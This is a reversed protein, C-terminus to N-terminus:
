HIFSVREFAGRFCVISHHTAFRPKAGHQCHRILLLTSSATSKLQLQGGAFSFLVHGQSKFLANNAALDIVSFATPNAATDPENPLGLRNPEFQLAIAQTIESSAQNL